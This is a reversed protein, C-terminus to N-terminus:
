IVTIEIRKANEKRTESQTRSVRHVSIVIRVYRKVIRERRIRRLRHLM